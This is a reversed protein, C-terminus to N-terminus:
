YLNSSFYVFYQFICHIKSFIKVQLPDGFLFVAVGGFEKNNEKIEKLRLDMRYLIEPKMMSFEDVIIFKLNKYTERMEERLKDSLSTHKSEFNFKLASHLTVGGILVGAAGTTATKLIHPCDPDDGQKQLIRHVWQCLVEIVTSKGAGAGGTVVLRPADPTRNPPKRAKVTDRAFQIGIDVVKRQWEDLRQTKEDLIVSELLILQNTIKVGINSAGHNKLFEDPNLHSYQPDEVDGEEECDDIEQEKEADLDIGTDETEIENKLSEEVYMRAEEVDELWEMVKEKVKKINELEKNYDETCSEESLTWRDYVNKDFTKYLLLEQLFYKEPNTDCKPKYFRIAKPSNRKKM